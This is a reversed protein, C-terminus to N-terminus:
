QYLIADIRWLGNLSDGLGQANYRHLHFTLRDTRMPTIASWGQTVIEIMVFHEVYNNSVISLQATWRQNLWKHATERG